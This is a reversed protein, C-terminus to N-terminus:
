ESNLSHHSHGSVTGHICTSDVVMGDRVELFKYVRLALRLHGRKWLAKEAERPISIRGEKSAACYM